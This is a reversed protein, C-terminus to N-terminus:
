RFIGQSPACPKGMVCRESWQWGAGRRPAKKDHGARMLDSLTVKATRRVSLSLHEALASVQGTVRIILLLFVYVVAGRLVFEWWPLSPGWLRIMGENNFWRADAGQLGFGHM